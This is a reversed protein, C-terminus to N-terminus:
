LVMVTVDENSAQDLATELAPRNQELDVQVDLEGFLALVPVTVQAWDDAPNHTLFYLVWTQIAAMESAIIEEPDGLAERQEEPMAALQQPLVVRIYAEIADRDQAVVQDYEARAAEVAREVEDPLAGTAEVSHRVQALLLDHGEVAHGGMSVVYAVQPNRAAVMAAIWAGESHGLIGVQEPDIDERTLLFDLAAGTDTSLDASTATRHDGTSEGVGREDYRLVAIGEGTLHQALARNPVYGPVAPHGADRGMPGSGSVLIIALHPGAGPAFTLTGGLTIGGNQFRVEEELLSPPAPTPAVTPTPELTPTPTPELTATPLPTPAPTPEVALTPTSAVENACSVALGLTLFIATPV